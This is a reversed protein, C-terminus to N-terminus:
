QIGKVRNLEEIGRQTLMEKPLDRISYLYQGFCRCYIEEGFQTIEDYYGAPGAKMLGKEIAWNNRLAYVNSDREKHDPRYNYNRQRWNSHWIVAIAGGDKALINNLSSVFKHSQDIM